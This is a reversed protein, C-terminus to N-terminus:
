PPRVRLSRITRTHSRSHTRRDAQTHTRACVWVFLCTVSCGIRFRWRSRNSDALPASPGAGFRCTCGLHHSRGVIPWAKKRICLVRAHARVGARVCACACACDCLCVSISARARAFICRTYAARAHKRARACVCACARVCARVCACARMYVTRLCARVHVCMCACARVYVCICAYVCLCLLVCLVVRADLAHLPVLNRGATRTGGHQIAATSLRKWARPGHSARRTGATSAPGHWRRTSM